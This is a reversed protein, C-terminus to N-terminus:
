IGKFWKRLSSAIQIGVSLCILTHIIDLVFVLIGVIVALIWWVVAAMTSSQQHWKVLVYFIKVLSMFALLYLGICLATTGVIAVPSV